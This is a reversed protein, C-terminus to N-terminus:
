SLLPELLCSSKEEKDNIHSLHAVAKNKTVNLPVRSLRCRGKFHNTFHILISTVCLLISVYKPFDKCNTM